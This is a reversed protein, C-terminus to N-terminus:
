NEYYLTIPKQEKWVKFLDKGWYELSKDQHKKYFVAFEIMDEDSNSHTEQSKSYGLIFGTTERYRIINYDGFEDILLADNQSCKKLENFLVKPHLTTKLALEEVEDVVKPVDINSNTTAIVKGGFWKPMNLEHQSDGSQYLTGNSIYWDKHIPKEDSVYYDFGDITVKECLHEENTKSNILKYKKM